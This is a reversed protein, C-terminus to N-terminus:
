AKEMEFLKMFWRVSSWRSTGQTRIEVASCQLWCFCHAPAEIIFPWPDLGKFDASEADQPISQFSRRQYLSLIVLPPCSRGLIQGIVSAPNFFNSDFCFNSTGTSIMSFIETASHERMKSSVAAIKARWPGVADGVEHRESSVHVEV